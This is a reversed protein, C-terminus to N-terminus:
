TKKPRYSKIFLYFLTLSVLLLFTVINLVLIVQAISNHFFCIGFIETLIALVLLFVFNTRHISLFYYIFVNVLSLLFVFFGFFGLYASIELYDNGFLLGIVLKPLLFYFFLIVAGGISVIALSNRLVNKHEQEREYLDAVIPFMAAAVAGFAFFIIKGLTSLAAYLGAKHPDFFHKVLVVDISYMLTLCLFSIFVPFSYSKIKSYDIKQPKKYKFLFKLPYLSLLYALFLGMFIAFVAGNVRFGLYVLFVGLFLKVTPDIVLNLSLQKFKQLGQLIGRNLPLVFAMLFLTSLLIIPSVVSINLFQAIKSSYVIFLLFLILSLIFLNESLFIMFSRIKDFQEKAAFSSVFKVTVTKITAAFVGIIYFISILAALIGYDSPGLMRGMLLHFLYNLVNVAMMGAFLIGSSKVLYNNKLKQIFSSVNM